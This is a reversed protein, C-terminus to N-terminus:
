FTVGHGLAPSGLDARMVDRLTGLAAQYRDLVQQYEVSQLDGGEAVVDRLERLTRFAEDGALVAREPALLVLQERHINLKASRFATRAASQRSVDAAHEGLSVARLEESTTHLAGLYTGYANRLTEHRRLNQDRRARVRDAFLTVSAGVVTGLLALM